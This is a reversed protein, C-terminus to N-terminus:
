KIGLMAKLRDISAQTMREAERAGSAGKKADHQAKDQGRHIAALLANRDPTPTQHKM